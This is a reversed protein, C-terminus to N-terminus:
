IGAESIYSEQLWAALAADEQEQRLTQPSRTQASVARRTRARGAASVAVRANRDGVPQWSELTTLMSARQFSSHRGLPRGREHADVGPLQRWPTPRTTRRVFGSNRLQPQREEGIVLVPKKTAVEVNESSKKRDEARAATEKPFLLQITNWLM